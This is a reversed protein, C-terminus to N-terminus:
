EYRKPKEFSVSIPMRWSADATELVTEIFATVMGDTFKASSIQRLIEEKFVHSQKRVAEEMAERVTKEVTKEALWKLYPVADYSTSPTGDRKDVKRNITQGIAAKVIEEPKGLAQVIAAAVVDEVVAKIYTQDVSLDLGVINGGSM